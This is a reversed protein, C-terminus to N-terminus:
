NADPKEEDRDNLIRYKIHSPDTEGPRITRAIGFYFTYIVIALSVAVILWGFALQFIGGNFSLHSAFMDLSQRLFDFM